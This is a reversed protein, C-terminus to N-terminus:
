PEFQDRFIEELPGVQVHDIMYGSITTPTGAVGLDVRASMSGPTLVFEYDGAEYWGTAPIGDVAVAAGQNPYLTDLVNGTCGPADYIDLKFLHYGGAYSAIYRLAFDITTWSHVDVCQTAEAIATFSTADLRLTGASPSGFYNDRYAGGGVSLSWGDTNSDFDPNSVLNIAIAGPSAAILLATIFKRLM